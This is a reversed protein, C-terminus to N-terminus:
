VTFPQPYILRSINAIQPAIQAVQFELLKTFWDLQQKEVINLCQNIFHVSPDKAQLKDSLENFATTNRFERLFEKSAPYQKKGEEYFLTDARPYM